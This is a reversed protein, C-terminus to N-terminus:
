ANQCGTWPSYILFGIRFCSIHKSSLTLNGGVGWMKKNTPYESFNQWVSNTEGYGLQIGVTDLVIFFHPTHTPFKVLGMCIGDTDLGSIHDGARQREDIPKAESRTSLIIDAFIGRHREDEM